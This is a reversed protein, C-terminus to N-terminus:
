EKTKQMQFYIGYKNAFFIMIQVDLPEISSLIEIFIKKLNLRKSPNTANAILGAWLDQIKEDDEKSANELLPIAFRSPIAKTDGAVFSSQHLKNVKGQIRILNKYRFYKAWDHTIGGIEVATEGFVM